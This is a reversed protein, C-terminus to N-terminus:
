KGDSLFLEAKTEREKDFNFTFMIAIRHKTNWQKRKLIDIMITNVAVDPYSFFRFRFAFLYWNWLLFASWTVSSFINWNSRNAKSLDFMRNRPYKWTRRKRLGRDFSNSNKRTVGVPIGKNTQKNRKSCVCFDTFVTQRKRPFRNTRCAM